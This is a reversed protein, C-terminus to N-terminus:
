ASSTTTSRLRLRSCGRRRSLLMGTGAPGGSRSSLVGCPTRLVHCAPRTILLSEKWRHSARTVNATQRAVASLAAPGPTRTTLVRIRRRWWRATATAQGLVMGGTMLSSSRHFNELTTKEENQGATELPALEDVRHDSALPPAFLMGSFSRTSARSPRALPPSAPHRGLEDKLARDAPFGARPRAVQCRVHAGM